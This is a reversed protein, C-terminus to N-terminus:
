KVIFLKIGKGDVMVTYVGSALKSIGIREKEAVQRKMVVRGAQDIISVTQASGIGSVTLYEQAPNPYVRLNASGSKVAIVKSYEFKGDHDLQKLRYYSTILPNLDTFHYTNVEKSDGSGDVFGIREFTRADASREIEFGKNNTESTTKWNLKTQDNEYTGDFSVLTVPLKVAVYNKTVLTLGPVLSNTTEVRYIGEGDLAVMDVGNVTRILVDGKYLKHTLNAITGGTLPIIHTPICGVCMPGMLTADILAQPAYVDLRSINSEIGSFNFNNNNIRVDATVPIGLIGSSAGALQNESLDLKTLKTLNNFSAPITGTLLNHNLNLVELNTLNGIESPISTIGAWPMSLTKLMSYNGFYSPISGISGMQQWGPGGQIEFYLHELDSLNQFSAPIGGTTPTDIGLFSLKTLSGIVHLNTTKFVNGRLDLYELNTLNGLEIPIEGVWPLSEPGGSLLDLSKLASLNGIEPALPGNVQFMSLDLGTVRGGDCTVGTWGCPSDGPSGPINWGTIDNFNPTGYFENIGTSTATYIAVLAQRDNELTQGFLHISFLLCVLGLLCRKM